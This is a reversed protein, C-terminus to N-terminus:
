RARIFRRKEDLLTRRIRQERASEVPGRTEDRSTMFGRVIVDEAQNTFLTKLDPQVFAYDLPCGDSMLSMITAHDRSPDFRYLNKGSFAREPMPDVGLAAMVTPVVDAHSTIRYDISDAQPAILILPVRTQYDNLAMSHGFRGREFFEEGHDGTIVVLTRDLSGDEELASLVRDILVDLYHASNRYRNLLRDAKARLRFDNASFDSPMSPHFKEADEPYYYNYHTVYFFLFDFFREGERSERSELFAEVMKEDEVELRRRKWALTTDAHKLSDITVLRDINEGFVFRDMNGYSLDSSTFVSTEYGLRDLYGFFLPNWGEKDCVYWFLPSLGSFLTFLGEPTRTGGSYHAPSVFAKRRNIWSSLRPMVEDNVMDWRWSEAALFLVDWDKAARLEAPWERETRFGSYSRREVAREYDDRVVEIDRPVFDRSFGLGSWLQSLGWDWRNPPFLPVTAAARKARLQHHYEHASYGLFTVASVVAAVIWMARLTPLRNAIRQSWTTRGLRWLALQAGLGAVGLGCIGVLAGPDIGLDELIGSETILSLFGIDLHTLYLYVILLDAYLYFPLIVFWVAFISATIAVPARLKCLIVAFLPALGWLYFAEGLHYGWSAWPSEGILPDSPMVDLVRFAILLGIVVVLNVVAAIRLEDLRSADPSRRM